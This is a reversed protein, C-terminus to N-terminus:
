GGILGLVFGLLTLAEIFAAGLIFVTQITGAVEPQRAMNGTSFIGLASISMAAFALGIAYNLLTPM